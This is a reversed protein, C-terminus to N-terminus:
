QRNVRTTTEMGVQRAITRRRFQFACQTETSRNTPTLLRRTKLNKSPSGQGILEFASDSGPEHITQLDKIGEFTRFTVGGASAMPGSALGQASGDERRIHFFGEDDGNVNQISLIWQSRLTLRYRGKPYAQQNVCFSFPTTVIFSQASVSHASLGILAGVLGAAPMSSVFRNCLNRINM